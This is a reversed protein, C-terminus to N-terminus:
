PNDMIYSTKLRGGMRKGSPKKHPLAV